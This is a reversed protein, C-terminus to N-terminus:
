TSAGVIAGAMHQGVREAVGAGDNEVTAIIRGHSIVAISDALEILEDLM